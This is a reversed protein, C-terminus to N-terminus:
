REITESVKLTQPEVILIQKLTLVLRHAKFQPLKGAIEDPMPITQVADPIEDGVNVAQPLDAIQIKKEKLLEKIVHAQELTLRGSQAYVNLTGLSLACALVVFQLVSFLRV